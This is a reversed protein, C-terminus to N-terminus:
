NNASSGREAKSSLPWSNRFLEWSFQISKDMCNPPTLVSNFTGAGRFLPSPYFFSTQAVENITLM